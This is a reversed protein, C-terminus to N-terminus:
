KSLINKMQIEKLTDIQNRYAEEVLKHVFENLETEDLLTNEKKSETILKEKILNIIESKIYEEEYYEVNYSKSAILTPKGERLNTYISIGNIFTHAYGIGINLNILIMDSLRIGRFYTNGAQSTYASTTLMNSSNSYAVSSSIPIINNVIKALDSM